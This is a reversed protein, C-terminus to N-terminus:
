VHCLRGFGDLHYRFIKLLQNFKGVKSGIWKFTAEQLWDLGYRFLSRSQRGHKKLRITKIHRHRFDGALISWCYAITLLVILKKLKKRSTMHTTEFQFGKSKFCGFLTEIQWRELYHQIGDEGSQNTVVIMNESIDKSRAGWISLKCGYVVRRGSLAKKEGAKLDSFLWGIAVSQGRSNTTDADKKVRIYFPIKQSVLYRFWKEGIFERDALVGKIYNKGFLKIFRNMLAIRQKTSSNGKTKLLLWIVPIACGKYEICLFLINISCSGWQWNTRDLTIYFYRQEFNFLKYILKAVLSYDFHVEDFFRQIRRYYSLPQTNSLPLQALKMLNVTNLTLLGFLLTTFCEIRRKDWHFYGNLITRLESIAKM